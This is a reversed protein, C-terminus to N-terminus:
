EKDEAPTESDAKFPVAEWSVIQSAVIPEFTTQTAVLERLRSPDNLHTWEAKLMHIAKKDVLIQRHLADLAEEKAIVQYKLVFALVGSLVAVLVCLANFLWRKM